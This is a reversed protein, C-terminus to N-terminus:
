ASHTRAHGSVPEYGWRICLDFLRPPTEIPIPRAPRVVGRRINPGWDGIGYVLPGHDQGYEVMGDHPPVELYRCLMRCVEVPRSVLEEYRVLPSDPERLRAGELVDGFRLVLDTADSASRGDRARVISDVIGAPHRILFIWGADPWCEKLEEYVFANSPSKEVIRRAGVRTLCEYLLRDWLLFRLEKEDIQLTQMALSTYESRIGVSLYRLHLEHPSAILPHSDLM